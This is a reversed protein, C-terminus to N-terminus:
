TPRLLVSRKHRCANRWVVYGAADVIGDRNGDAALNTTSGFSSRWVDRDGGEVTGNGNDNGIIPGLNEYWAIKDDHFSASLVDLTAQAPDFL